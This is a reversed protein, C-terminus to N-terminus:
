KKGKAAWGQMKAAGYKRRGAAAAIAKAQEVSKGEAVLRDVFAAFRGGSGLKARPNPKAM